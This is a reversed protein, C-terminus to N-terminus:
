VFLEKDSRPFIWDLQVMDSNVFSLFYFHINIQESFSHEVALFYLIISSNGHILINPWSQPSKCIMKRTVFCRTFIRPLDYWSQGFFENNVTVFINRVRPKIDQVCLVALVITSRENRWQRWPLVKRVSCEDGCNIWSTVRVSPVPMTVHYEDITRARAFKHFAFNM